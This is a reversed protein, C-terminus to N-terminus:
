DFWQKYQQNKGGVLTLRHLDEAGQDYFTTIPFWLAVSKFLFFHKYCIHTIKYLSHIKRIFHFLLVFTSTFFSICHFLVKRLPRSITHSNFMKCKIHFSAKLSSQFWFNSFTSKPIIDNHNWKIKNYDLQIIWFVKGYIQNHLLM